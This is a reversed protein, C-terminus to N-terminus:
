TASVRVTGGGRVRSSGRSSSARLRDAVGFVDAVSLESGSALVLVLEVLEVSASSLRDFLAGVLESRVRADCRDLVQGAPLLSSPLVLLSRGDMLPVLARVLRFCRPESVLAAVLVSPDVGRGSATRCLGDWWSAARDVSSPVADCVAAVFGVVVDLPAFVFADFLRDGVLWRRLVAPTQSVCMGASVLDAVVVQGARRLRSADVRRRGGAVDEVVDVDGAVVAGFLEDAVEVLAAVLESRGACRCRLGVDMDPLWDAVVVEVSDPWPGVGADVLRVVLSEDFPVKSWMPGLQAVLVELREPSSAAGVLAAAARDGGCVVQSSPVRGEFFLEASLGLLMEDASSDFVMLYEVLSPARGSALLGACVSVCPVHAVFDDFLEVDLSDVFSAVESTWRMEPSSLWAEVVQQSSSAVWPRLRLLVEFSPRSSMLLEAVDRVAVGRAVLVSRLLVFLREDDLGHDPGAELAASVVLGLADMRGVDRVAMVVVTWVGLGM